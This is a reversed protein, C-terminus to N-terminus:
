LPLALWQVLPAEYDITAQRMGLVGHLLATRSISVAVWDVFEGDKFSRECFKSFRSSAADALVNQTWMSFFVRSGSFPNEHFKTTSYKEFIQQCFELKM